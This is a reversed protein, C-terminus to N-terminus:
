PQLREATEFIPFEVWRFSKPVPFPFQVRAEQDVTLREVGSSDRCAHLLRAYMDLALARRPLVAIPLGEPIMPIQICLPCAEMRSRARGQKSSLPCLGLNRALTANRVRGWCSRDMDSTGSSRWARATQRINARM